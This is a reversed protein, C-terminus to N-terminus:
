QKYQYKWIAPVSITKFKCINEFVLFWILVIRCYKHIFTFIMISAKNKILEQNLANKRRINCNEKQPDWCCENNCESLQLCSYSICKDNRVESKKRTKFTSLFHMMHIFYLPQFHKFFYNFLLNLTYRKSAKM